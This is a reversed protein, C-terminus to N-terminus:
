SFLSLTIKANSINISYFGDDPHNILRFSLFLGRVTQRPTLLQQLIARSARTTWHTASVVWQPTHRPNLDRLRWKRAELCAWGFRKEVRLNLCSICRSLSNHQITWALSSTRKYLCTPQNRRPTPSTSTHLHITSARIRSILSHVPVRVYLLHTTTVVHRTPYGAPSLYLSHHFM